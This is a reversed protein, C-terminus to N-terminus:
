CADEFERRPHEADTLDFTAKARKRADLRRFALDVLAAWRPLDAGPLRAADREREVRRPMQLWASTHWVGALDGFHLFPGSVVLVARDGGVREGRRFPQLVTERFAAEDYLREPSAALPRFASRGMPLAEAPVGEAAFAGALDLGFAERASPLDGEDPHEIGDLGVLIRGRPHVALVERAYEAIVDSRLPQWRAM